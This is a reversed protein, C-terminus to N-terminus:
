PLFPQGWGQWGRQRAGYGSLLLVFAIVTLPMATIQFNGQQFTFAAHPLSLMLTGGLTVAQIAFWVRRFDWFDPALWRVAQPLLLFPPPYHFPDVRLPGIERPTANQVYLRRDYINHHREELLRASEAYASLCSHRSRFPDQPSVSFGARHVDAMFISVSGFRLISVADVLARELSRSLVAAAVAAAVAGVILAPSRALGIGAVGVALVPTLWLFLALAFIQRRM